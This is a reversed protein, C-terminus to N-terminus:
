ILYDWLANVHLWFAEEGGFNHKLSDLLEEGVGAQLVTSTIRKLLAKRKKERKALDDASLPKRPRWLLEATIEHLQKRPMEEDFSSVFDVLGRMDQGALILAQPSISGTSNVPQPCREERYRQLNRGIHDFSELVEYAFLNQERDRGKALEALDKALKAIRHIPANHHCFVLGASHRLPISNFHWESSIEYFYQLTEWGKWAPVVWLIEDGGWLLTEIRHRGERTQWDSDDQMRELLGDLMDCRYSKVTTDFKLWEARSHSVDNKIKGFRNGDLYIVAMKENLDGKAKDETLEKLERVFQAQVPKGIQRQYFSQKLRQGALRRVAVSESVLYTKGEPASVPQTAPRVLDIECAQSATTSTLSITQSQMQRWRNKATLLAIDEAFYQDDRTPQIDVVFTAHKLKTDSALRQRIQDCIQKATDLDAADFEYLGASAGTTLPRMRTPHALDPINDVADLLLLGGGRVTSLDQADYVFNNLNVAEVRLYYRSM